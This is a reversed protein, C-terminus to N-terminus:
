LVWKSTSVEFYLSGYITLLMGTPLIIDVKEVVPQQTKFISVPTRIERLINASVSTDKVNCVIDKNQFKLNFYGGVINHYFSTKL